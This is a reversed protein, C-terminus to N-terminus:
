FVWSGFWRLCNNIYSSSINMGSLVPYFMIFLLAAFIMYTYVTGRVFYKLIIYRSNFSYLYNLVYVICIIVFPVTSFYHYIFTIRKVFIWPIYQCLAAIYIPVMKRERKAISILVAAFFAIIGFWWIVPNGMAVISSRLGNSLNKGYYWMPKYIVPWSWWKSSYSHTANLVNETHYKYMYIQNDIISKIGHSQQTMTPIYSIAYILVPIIVFFLICCLITFNIHLPVYDRIREISKNYAVSIKNNLKKYAKTFIIYEKIKTILFILALGAGGYLGIWKSAAALGFFLGSLFLSKMSKKLGHKYSLYIYYDYMFFYMLIIFLTAYSDITAIRTQTFHMFDFMLLFACSFAPFRARFIKKGFAYLVPLMIVGALMGMIRWGFPNMGFIIIGLSMIVKGLPPHTVEYPELDHLYEYATRAHYVEDFYMDTMYSSNSSITQQEDIINYLRSSQQTESNESYISIGKLPEESDKEFIGIEYLEAKSTFDSIRIKDTTFNVEKYKWCYLDVVDDKELSDAPIFVGNEDMCELRYEGGGLGAYFCIRSVNVRKGLDIVFSEGEFLPEWYTHPVNTTGLRWVAILFYILTIATMIIIDKKDLLRHNAIEKNKNIIGVRGKKIIKSLKINMINLKIVFLLIVTILLLLALSFYGNVSKNDTNASSGIDYDSEAYLKVIKIDSPINDLEEVQVDDFWAKGSNLRDYGGLGLTLEFEYQEQSTVGYLELYQWGDSTNRVDNSIDTIGTVSINAGVSDEGVNETKAWCSLKYYTNPKVKIKQVARADNPFNSEILLSASGSHKVDHDITIKSIGKKNKWDYIDWAIIGESNYEEFGPNAVSVITDAYVNGGTFILIILFVILSIKRMLSGGCIM